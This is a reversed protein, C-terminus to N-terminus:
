HAPKESAGEEDKAQPVTAKELISTLQALAAQLEASEASPAATNQLAKGDQDKPNKNPM